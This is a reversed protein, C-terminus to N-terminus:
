CAGGEESAAAANTLDIPQWTASLPEGSSLGVLVSTVSAPGYEYLMTIRGDAHLDVQFTVRVGPHNYLEVQKYIISLKGMGRAVWVGGYLGSFGSPILDTAFVSIRKTTYHESASLVVSPDERDFTLCGNSGVHVATYRSGLFPFEMVNRFDVVKSDDDTLSLQVASEPLKLADRRRDSVCIRWDDVDISTAGRKPVFTLTKYALDFPIRASFSELVTAQCLPSESLDTEVWNGLPMMGGGVGVARFANAIKDAELFTLDIRGDRYLVIQFTNNSEDIAAGSLELLPMSQYTVVLSDARRLLSSSSDPSTTDLSSFLAAVRRTRHLTDERLLPEPTNSDFALYGDSAIVVSDYSRGLFPFGTTIGVTASVASHKERLSGWPQGLPAGPDPDVPFETAVAREVCVGMASTGIPAFRLTRGALDFVEGPQFVQAPLSPWPQWAERPPCAGLRSLTSRWFPPQSKGQPPAGASAGALVVAGPPQALGRLPMLDPYTVCLSGDWRLVAQALVVVEGREGTTYLTVILGESLQKYDVALSSGSSFAAAALLAVAHKERLAQVLKDVDDLGDGSAVASLLAAAPTSFTLLGQGTVFVASNHKGAFPFTRGDLLDIREYSRIDPLQSREVLGGVPHFPLGLASQHHWPTVTDVCGSVSGATSSSYCITHNSLADIAALPSLAEIPAPESELWKLEQWCSTMESFDATNETLMSAVRPETATSVGVMVRAGSLKPPAQLWAVTASGDSRLSVTFSVQAGDGGKIGMRHYHVFTTSDM